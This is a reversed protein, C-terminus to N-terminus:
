SAPTSSTAANRSGSTSPKFDYAPDDPAHFTVIIPAQIAPTLFTRLGLERWAKSWRRATAAYRGGRAPLGGEEFYQALAEDLAAVVHTPPTFRWQTTKHMYVWQDYLDM